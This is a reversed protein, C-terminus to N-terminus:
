RIQRVVLSRVDIFSDYAGVGLPQPAALDYKRVELFVRKGNLTVDMGKEM